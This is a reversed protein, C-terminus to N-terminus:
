STMWAFYSLLAINLYCVTLYVELSIEYVLQELLVYEEPEVFGIWWIHLREHCSYLLLFSATCFLLLLVHSSRPGLKQQCHNFLNGYFWYGDTTCIHMYKTPFGKSILEEWLMEQSRRVLRRVRKKFDERRERWEKQMFLHWMLRYYMLCECWSALFFNSPYVCPFIANDTTCCWM